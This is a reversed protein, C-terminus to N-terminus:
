PVIRQLGTPCQNTYAHIATLNDYGIKCCFLLPPPASTLDSAITLIM